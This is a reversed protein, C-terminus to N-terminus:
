KRVKEKTYCIEKQIKTETIKYYDDTFYGIHRKDEPLENYEERSILEYELEIITKGECYCEKYKDDWDWSCEIDNFFSDDSISIEEILEYRPWVEYIYKGLFFVAILFTILILLHYLKM